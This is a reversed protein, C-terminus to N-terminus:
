FEITRGGRWTSLDSHGGAKPTAAYAAMDDRSTAAVARTSAWERIAAIQESQTVSL